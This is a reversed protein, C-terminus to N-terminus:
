YLKFVFHAIHIRGGGEGETAALKLQAQLPHIHISGHLREFKM